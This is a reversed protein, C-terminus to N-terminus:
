PRDKSVRKANAIAGQVFIGTEDSWAPSDLLDDMLEDAQELGVLKTFADRARSAVARMTDDMVQGGRGGRGHPQHHQQPPPAQTGFLNMRIRLLRRLKQRMPADAPYKRDMIENLEHDTELSQLHDAEMRSLPKRMHGLTVVPQFMRGRFAGCKRCWGAGNLYTGRQGHHRGWIHRCDFESRYQAFAKQEAEAITKGEGRIFTGPPFAEFFPTAPIIGHGWQVTCDDPWECQPVYDVHGTLIGSLQHEHTGAIHHAAIRM